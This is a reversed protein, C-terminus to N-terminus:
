AQGPWAVVFPPREKARGERAPRALRARRPALDAAAQGPCACGNRGLDAATAAIRYKV